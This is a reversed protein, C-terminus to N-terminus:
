AAEGAGADAPPTNQEVYRSLAAAVKEAEASTLDKSTTIQRGVIEGVRM